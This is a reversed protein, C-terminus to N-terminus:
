GSSGSFGRERNLGGNVIANKGTQSHDAVLGAKGWKKKRYM